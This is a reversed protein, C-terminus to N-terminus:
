RGQPRPLIYMLLFGGLYGGLHGWNDFFGLFTNRLLFGVVVFILAFRALRWPQFRGMMGWRLYLALVAGMAGFLPGSAGVGASYHGEIIVNGIWSTLGATLASILFLAIFRIKGLIGELIPGYSWLCLCNALLHFIGFHVFSATIVTWYFGERLAEPTFTLWLAAEPSVQILGHIAVLLVLLPTTVASVPTFNAFKLHYKERTQKQLEETIVGSGACSSCEKSCELTGQGQCSKCDYTTGRSTTRQGAGHCNPCETKGTGQCEACEGSGQCRPCQM